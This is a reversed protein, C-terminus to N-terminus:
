RHVVRNRGGRKADYLAADARALLADLDSDDWRLHTLGVSITARIPGRSTAIPTSGVAVRVREAVRGSDAGPRLLLAFEEGGVRGALNEDGVTTRVRHAIARLVEDGIQHGYRDNIKKFHDVDIMVAAQAQETPGVAAEVPGVAAIHQEAIELFHRRNFLGTLGDLAALEQAHHLLCANEYAVMGHGALAAAIEVDADTYADPQKSAVVMFGVKGDRGLCPVALWSQADALVAPVPATAATGKTPQASALIEGLVNDACMKITQGTLSPDLWGSVAAISLENADGCLLCAAPASVARAAAELIRALVADPDLIQTLVSMESRLMEALDRQRRAAQIAVELQAAQATDMSVAIHNMIATLMDLDGETFVGRAVRSDLYVIACVRDRRRIPAVMVSRLRYVDASHSPLAGGWEDRTTILPECTEAVREVLTTAYGTLSVLDSLNADRGLQPILRRTEGDVKFLFAREAGLIRLTEDLAVRILETPDLVTAAAKSVQQLADLRRGLEGTTPPTPLTHTTPDGVEFEHRIWRVPQRGDHQRALQSATDAQRRAAPAGIQRDAPTPTIALPSKGAARAMRMGGDAAHMLEAASTHGASQEAVGVSVTVRLQHNGVMVPHDFARLVHDAISLVRPGTDGCALIVFEDGGLRVVLRGAPEM